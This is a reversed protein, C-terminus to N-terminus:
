LTYSQNSRKMLKFDEPEEESDQHGMAVEGAAGAEVAAAAAAVVEATTEGSGAAEVAATTAAEMAGTTTNRGTATDAATVTPRSSTDEIAEGEGGPSAERKGPMSRAAAEEQALQRVPPRVPVRM